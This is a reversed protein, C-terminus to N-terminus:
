ALWSAIQEPTLVVMKLGEYEAQRGQGLIEMAYRHPAPGLAYATLHLKNDTTDLYIPNLSQYDGGRYFITIFAKPKYSITTGMGAQSSPNWVVLIDDLKLTSGDDRHDDVVTYDQERLKQLLDRLIPEFEPLDTFVQDLM